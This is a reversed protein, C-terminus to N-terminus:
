DGPDFCLVDSPRAQGSVIQQPEAMLRPLRSPSPALSARTVSPSLRAVRPGSFEQLSIGVRAGSKAAIVGLDAQLQDFASPALVTTVPPAPKPSPVPNALQGQTRTLAVIRAVPVSQSAYAASGALMLLSVALPYLVLRLLARAPGGRM